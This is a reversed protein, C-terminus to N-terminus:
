EHVPLRQRRRHIPRKPVSAIDYALFALILQIGMLIPMASLMVTGAPTAVASRASLLWQSAGFIVGFLVMSVGLPLEISALSMNRLYYNYFLRKWFNRVHKAFFETVVRSIKLNSVEDGYSADMPVDVVVANVINLRFLMDSEFFYRRSIKDFPLYRAADAHIATYGNTPDFLDWYGSSLKTMLSLVANGFLRMPPMAGIKELDFFRNGKTYDAEGRLIPGIFDGMLAPNMQGDGDVKVIIAMGDAIAAQYGTMVAGGVGENVAHRLVRVRPDTCHQEVYDGSQDPCRDDVVYIRSVEAGIADIVGLIHRTVRYSPIVVAVMPPAITALAARPAFAGPRLAADHDTPPFHHM